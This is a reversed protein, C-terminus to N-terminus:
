QIEHFGSAAVAKVDIEDGGAQREIFGAKRGEDGGTEVMELEAELARAFFNSLFDGVRFRVSLFEADEIPKAAMAKRDSQIEHDMPAIEILKWLHQGEGFGGAGRADFEGVNLVVAPSKGVAM